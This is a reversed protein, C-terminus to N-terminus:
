RNLQIRKEFRGHHTISVPNNSIKGFPIGYEDKDILLSDIEAIKDFDSQNAVAESYIYDTNVITRVCYSRDEVLVKGPDIGTLVCSFAKPNFARIRTERQYIKYAAEKRSWLNWLMMETDTTNLILQQETSTFLKELWGRRQWNSQKHALALDIIDNGIM